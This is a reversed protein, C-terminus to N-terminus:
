APPPPANRLPALDPDTKAALKLHEAGPLALASDLWHRAADLNGLQAEYCALNYRMTPHDPFDSLVGLLNDRAEATRRLEHLSFSLSIWGDPHQPCTRILAECFPLSQEWSHNRAHIQWELHLAEPHQRSATSLRALEDAAERANGLELWGQAALLYHHDPWPLPNIVVSDQVHVCAM